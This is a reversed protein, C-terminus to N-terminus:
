LGEPAAALRRLEDAQRDGLSARLDTPDPERADPLQLRWGHELWASWLERRELVAEAAAAGSDTLRILGGERVAMGDRELSSLARAVQRGPRSSALSLQAATRPADGAALDSLVGEVLARRRRRSLM